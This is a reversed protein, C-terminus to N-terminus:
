SVPYYDDPVIVEKSEIALHLGDPGLGAFGFYRGQEEDRESVRKNSVQKVEERHGILKILVTDLQIEDGIM